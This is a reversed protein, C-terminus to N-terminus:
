SGNSGERIKGHIPRRQLWQVGVLDVIGVWLRDFLGYHSSGHRRARHNVKVSQVEYGDRLFLAPLFRHMHDFQPLALFADRRFVKIGCGTDPTSDHLLRSRLGNAIRSSLRKIRPDARRERHGIVLGLPSTSAGARATSVLRPIDAPDNQGDGDLTAVWPATAAEVGTLLAASQGARHGHRVVRLRPYGAALSALLDRTGDTSGDDVVLLEFEYSGELAVSIEGLLPGLNEAENHVPVVVSLDPIDM